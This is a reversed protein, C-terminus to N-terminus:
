FLSLWYPRLRHMIVVGSVFVVVFKLLAALPRNPELRDVFLFLTAGAFSVAFSYVLDDYM